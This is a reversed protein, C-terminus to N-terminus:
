NDGRQEREKNSTEPPQKGVPCNGLPATSLGGDVDPLRLDGVVVDHWSDLRSITTWTIADRIAMRQGPALVLM